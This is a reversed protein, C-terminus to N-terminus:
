LFMVLAVGNAKVKLESVIERGSSSLEISLKKGNRKTHVLGLNSLEKLIKSTSSLELGLHKSIKSLNIDKNLSACEDIFEITAKQTESLKEYRSIVKTIPSEM